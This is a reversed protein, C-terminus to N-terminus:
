RHRTHKTVHSSCFIPVVKILRSLFTVTRPSIRPHTKKRRNTSEFGRFFIRWYTDFAAALFPTELISTVILTQHRRQKMPVAFRFPSSLARCRISSKKSKLAGDKAESKISTFSFFPQRTLREHHRRRCLGHQQNKSNCTSKKESDRFSSFSDALRVLFFRCM